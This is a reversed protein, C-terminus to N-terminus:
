NRIRLAAWRERHQDTNVDDIIIKVRFMEDNFDFGASNTTEEDYVLFDQRPRSDGPPMVVLESDAPQM